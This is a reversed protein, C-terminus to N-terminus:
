SPKMYGIRHPRPLPLKGWISCLQKQSKGIVKEAINVIESLMNKNKVSLNSYWATINFSLISEVLSKYAMELIHQSIGFSRLKRILFLRQNARKVSNETFTLTQDIIAGSYKFHKVEEVPQNNVEM